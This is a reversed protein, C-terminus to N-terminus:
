RAEFEVLIKMRARSARGDKIGPHMRSQMFTEIAAKEFAPPLDSEGLEIRDIRGSEGVFLVLVGTVRAKDLVADPFPVVVPSAPQPPVDLEKSPLYPLEQIVALGGAPSADGPAGLPHGDAPRASEPPPPDTPTAEGQAAPVVPAPSAALRSTPVETVAQTTAPSPAAHLRVEMVRAERGNSPSPAHGPQQARWLGVAAAHVALSTCLGVVVQRKM